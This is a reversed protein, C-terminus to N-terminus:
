KSRLEQGVGKNVFRTTVAEVPDLDGEEFLGASVMKEYFNKVRATDIAGIGKELTDGSDILGQERLKRLSYAIQGDTMEANERKILDNAKSNDGYLYHYWGVISADVFRQVLDPKNEILDTRTEIVTSYSNWGHDALLFVLPERGIVEEVRKPEATAYGQQVAAKNTLFPALNHNYPRLNREDFDHAAKMWVFFSFRGSNGMLLPARKLDDWNKYGSDPHAILCQPDKQFIAAVVQTPIGQKAAEFPQLLNTGVLFDVRGVPLLVRNNVLPGGPQITVDLGFEEYTGDALAQYFGGLEPQAKWNTAM